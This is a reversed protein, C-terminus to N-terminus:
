TRRVTLPGRLEGSYESLDSAKMVNTLSFRIRVDSDEPPAPMGVVNLRVAGVSRSLAVNGDGIGVTLNSSGPSPPTRSGYALPPGHTRNSATCPNYAPVLSLYMPTAGKPRAYRPTS